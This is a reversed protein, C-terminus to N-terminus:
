WLSKVDEGSEREAKTNRFKKYEKKRINRDCPVAIDMKLTSKKNRDLDLM